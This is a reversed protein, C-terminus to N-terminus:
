PAVYEKGPDGEPRRRYGGRRVDEAWPGMQRVWGQPERGMEFKAFERVALM